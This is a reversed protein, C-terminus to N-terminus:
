RRSTLMQYDSGDNAAGSVTYDVALPDTTPGNRSFTVAGIGKVGNNVEDAKSGTATVSVVPEPLPAPWWPPLGRRWCTASLRPTRPSGRFCCGRSWCMWARCLIVVMRAFAGGALGYFVRFCGSTCSGVEFVCLGCIGGGRAAHGRM